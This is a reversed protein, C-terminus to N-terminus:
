FKVGLDIMWVTDRSSSVSSGSRYNDVDLRAFFSKSFDYKAGVGYTLASKSGGASAVGGPGVVTASLKLDSVGLKGLLSFRDALPLLGVGILNWGKVDATASIQGALNGGSATYKANSSGIYGGEIAFNRNILYGYQIKYVTPKSYTSGFGVGGVSTLAKDLDSKGSDGSLQGVGGLAYFSMDGSDAAIATSASVLGVIATLLVSIKMMYEGYM